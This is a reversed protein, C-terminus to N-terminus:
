AYQASLPLSFYFTSGKGPASNIWLVGGNLEVLEKCLLLGIGTGGEGSTGRQSFHTQVSFLKAIEDDNMGKGTDEVSIVMKDEQYESNLRVRGSIDTFKIANSILNRLVVKIHNEDALASQGRAAQNIFEINKKQLAQSFIQEMEAGLEFIDLSSSTV